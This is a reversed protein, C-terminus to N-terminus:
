CCKECRSANLNSFSYALNIVELNKHRARLPDTRLEKFFHNSPLGVFNIAHFKLKELVDGSSLKLKLKSARLTLAIVYNGKSNRIADLYRPDSTCDVRM